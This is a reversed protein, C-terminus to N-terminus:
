TVLVSRTTSSVGDRRQFRVVRLRRIVMLLQLLLMRWLVVMLGLMQELRKARGVRRQSARILGM